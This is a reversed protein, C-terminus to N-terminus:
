LPVEQASPLHKRGIGSEAYTKIITGVPETSKLNPVETPGRLLEGQNRGPVRLRNTHMCSEQSCGFVGRTQLMRWIRSSQIKSPLVPARM